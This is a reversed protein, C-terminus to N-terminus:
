RPTVAGPYRYKVLVIDHIIKSFATIWEIISLAIIFYDLHLSKVWLLYPSNDYASQKYLANCV